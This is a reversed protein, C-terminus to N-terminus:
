ASALSPQTERRFTAIKSRAEDLDSAVVLQNGLRKYMGLLSVLTSRMIPNSAVIVILGPDKTTDEMHEDTRNMARKFAKNMNVGFLDPMGSKTLDVIVDMDHDYKATVAVGADLAEILDDISWSDEFEYLLVTKDDTGWKITIM